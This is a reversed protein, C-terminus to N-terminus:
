SLGLRAGSERNFRVLMRRVTKATEIPNATCTITPYTGPYYPMPVPAPRQALQTQLSAVQAELAAVRAALEKKKM